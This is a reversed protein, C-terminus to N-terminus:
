RCSTQPRWSGRLPSSRSHRRARRTIATPQPEERKARHDSHLPIVGPRHCLDLRAKTTAAPRQNCRASLSTSRNVSRRREIVPPRAITERRKLGKESEVSLTSFIARTVRILLNSCTHFQNPLPLRMTELARPWVASNQFHTSGWNITTAKHGAIDIYGILFFRLSCNCVHSVM